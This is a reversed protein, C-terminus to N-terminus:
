CKQTEIPTTNLRTGPTTVTNPTTTQSDLPVRQILIPAPNTDQNLKRKCKM